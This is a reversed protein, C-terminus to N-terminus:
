RRKPNPPNRLTWENLVGIPSGDDRWGGLFADPHGVGAMGGYAMGSIGVVCHPEVGGIRGDKHVAELPKSFDVVSM